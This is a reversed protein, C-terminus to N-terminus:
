LGKAKETLWAKNVVGDTSQIDEILKEKSKKDQYKVRSLKKIFKIFNLYRLQKAKTIDKEHRNLFTRYSDALSIM